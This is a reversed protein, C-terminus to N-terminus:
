KKQSQLFTRIKAADAKSLRPAARELMVMFWGIEEPAYPHGINQGAKGERNSNVVTKGNADLFASFPLGADKGGLRELVAVGGPNELHKKDGQEQVVLKVIVFNDEFTKKLDKHHIFEDM